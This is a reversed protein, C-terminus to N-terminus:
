EEGGHRVLTAVEIHLAIGALGLRDSVPIRGLRLCLGRSLRLRVLVSIHDGSAGVIGVALLGMGGLGATSQGILLRIAGEGLVGVSVAVVRVFVSIDSVVHIGIIIHVAVSIIM